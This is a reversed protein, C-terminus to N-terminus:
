APRPASAALAAGGRLRRRHPRRAARDAPVVRKIEGRDLARRLDDALSPRDSRTARMARAFTEARDGGAKKANAMAIEADSLLDSAEQCRRSRVAVVGISVTLAVEREGFSIPTTLMARISEVFRAASREAIDDIMVIAGFQDGGLRALTDGPRLERGLRRAVALLASDGFSMGLADNIEKFRDIDIALM